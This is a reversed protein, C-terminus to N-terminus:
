YNSLPKDFILPSIFNEGRRIREIAVQLVDHADEKLLYGNAGNKMAQYVLEKSKNMTLILVKVEPYLEKIFRTAELGRLRPMNIDIIVMDPTSKELIELLELGDGAEDVVQLEPDEQIIRKLGERMLVHDDALIIKYPPM